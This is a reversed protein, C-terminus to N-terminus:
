HCPLLRNRIEPIEHDNPKVRNCEPLGFNYVINAKGPATPNFLNFLALHVDVIMSLFRLSENCTEM